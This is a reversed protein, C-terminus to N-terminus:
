PRPLRPILACAAKIAEIDHHLYTELSGGAAHGTVRSVVQRVVESNFVSSAASHRLSHFTLSRLRCKGTTRILPNEIGATEVLLGFEHSLGLTGSTARGCLTPFLPADAKEPVTQRSIWDLLDPHLATVSQRPTKRERFVLLGNTLDFNEWTLNAADSLRAASTYSVLIAGQWDNNAVRLLRAIQGPTFPQRRAEDRREATTAAFPNSQIRGTRRAREFATSIIERLKNITSPQRGSRRLHAIFAEADGINISGLRRNEGPSLFALFERTAQTYNQFTGPSLAPRRTELWQSLWGKVSLRPQEAHGLRRLTEQLVSELRARDFEGSRAEQEAAEWAQCIIKAKSKTRTGTSRFVRRGDVLRFSCFWVGPGNTRPDRHLSAM